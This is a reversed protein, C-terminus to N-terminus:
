DFDEPKSMLGLEVLQQSSEYRLTLPNILDYNNGLKDLVNKYNIHRRNCFQRRSQNKSEELSRQGLDSMLKYHLLVGTVDSVKAPTLWHSSGLFKIGRNGAIIPTKTQPVRENFMNSRIGGSVEIYPCVATGYFEYNNDFYPSVAMPDDVEKKIIGGTNAPYMDLMFTRFVEHGKKKMYNTLYRLNYQEIGPFILAEDMDIYMCWHEKGYKEVLSNIWQMGSAAQGYNEETWFLHVDKQKKLFETGGDNSGNDVVFFHEVGLKRYYEFFWPFRNMENKLCTFLLIKDPQDPLPNTDLRDLKGKYKYLALRNVLNKKQLHDWIERAQKVNGTSYESWANLVLIRYNHPNVKYLEKILKRADEVRFAYIYFKALNIKINPIRPFKRYLTEMITIAGELFNEQKSKFLTIAELVRIEINSEDYGPMSRLVKLASDWEYRARHINAMVQVYSKEKPNLDSKKLLEVAQDIKNDEILIKIYQFLSQQEDPFRTVINKWISGALELRFTDKALRAQQKYFKSNDPWKKLAKNLLQEAEDFKKLEILARSRHVYIVPNESLLSTIQETYQLCLEWEELNVACAGLFIYAERVDPWRKILKNLIIIAKDYHGKHVLGKGRKIRSRIIISDKFGYEKVLGPNLISRIIRSLSVGAIKFYYVYRLLRNLFTRNQNTEGTM